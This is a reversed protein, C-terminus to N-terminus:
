LALLQKIRKEVELMTEITVKGWCDILRDTSITRIQDCLIYSNNKVGGEPPIIEFHLPIGKNTSTLPAVVVLHAPGNNFADVSLILCPRTKAQEHGKTKQPLGVLWIEGRQIM